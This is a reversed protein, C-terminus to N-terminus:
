KFEVKRNNKIYTKKNSHGSMLLVEITLKSTMNAVMKPTLKENIIYVIDTPKISDDIKIAMMNMSTQGISYYKRNNILVYHSNIGYGIGNNYGIPIIAIKIDEKAKYSLGYGVYEGKNINKIQLINTYMKIAPKIDLEVDTIIKSLNYKKQMYKNRVNRLKNIIGHNNTRITPNYGYMISGLRVGNTWKIKEHAVLNLSSTIHIIPIKNLDINKTLELFRNIQNDYSSEHIGVSSLHTYIGELEIYKNSKIDNYAQELEEQNKFGLRNMGCDLKIHVKINKKLIKILEKLYDYSTITITINNDIAIDLDSLDIPVFCLLPIDKNYKRVEIAENLYSVALYNIGGEILSNVIYTGHGYADSKVVGFYYKYNNYKKIINEVNNKLTDLNIELYTKDM